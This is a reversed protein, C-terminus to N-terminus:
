FIEWSRPARDWGFAASASAVRGADHERVLGADSLSRLSVGGLYVSGLVGVDMTLDPSATTLVCTASSRDGVLRWRGANGPILEDDVELVVDVPAAYRRAALAAPLDVVRVWLGPGTSRVLGGPNDLLHVLPEDVAAFEYRVTRVLDISVLFRWLAAYAEATEAVVETVMAEGIPGSAGWGGKTRWMAYGDAGDPGSCLVAREASWGGRRSVVDATRRQWWGGPRSSVGPYTGRARDLVEAMTAREEAPVVERLRGPQTVGPVTTEKTLLEYGVNWSALGYGYRGYIGGESAWLAAIPEAGATHVTDLLDTMVATLLGRRRHTPAVGVGTVHAVPLTTGPVTMERTFVGGAAVIRDADVAVHTRAPEFVLRRVALVDDDAEMLLAGSVLATVAAFDDDTCTRM